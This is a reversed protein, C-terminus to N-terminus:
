EDGRTEDAAALRMASPASAGALPDPTAPMIRGASRPAGAELIELMRSFIARRMRSDSADVACYM